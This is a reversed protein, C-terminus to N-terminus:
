TRTSWFFPWRHLRGHKVNAAFFHPVEYLCLVVFAGPAYCLGSVTCSVTQWNEFSFVAVAIGNVLSTPSLNLIHYGLSGLKLSNRGLGVNGRATPQTRAIGLNEGSIMQPPRGKPIQKSINIYVVWPQRWDLFQKV